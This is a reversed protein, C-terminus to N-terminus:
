IQFKLETRDLDTKFNSNSSLSEIKGVTGGQGDIDAQM